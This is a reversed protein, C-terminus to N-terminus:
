SEVRDMVEKPATLFEQWNDVTFNEPYGDLNSVSIVDEKEECSFITFVIMAIALISRKM